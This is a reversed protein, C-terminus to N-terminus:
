LKKPEDKKKNPWGSDDVEHIPDLLLMEKMDTYKELIPPEFATPAGNTRDSSTPASPQEGDVAVILQEALLQFCFGEIAKSLQEDTAQYHKGLESAIEPTARGELLLNWIAVGSKTASYYYGSVLNVIVTENDFTEQVVVPANLKYRQSNM